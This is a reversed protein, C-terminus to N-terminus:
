LKIIAVEISILPRRAEFDSILLVRESRRSGSDQYKKIIIQLLIGTIFCLILLLIYLLVDFITNQYPKIMLLKNSNEISNFIWPSFLRRNIIM